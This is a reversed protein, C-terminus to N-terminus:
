YFESLKSLTKNQCINIFSTTVLTYYLNTLQNGDQFFVGM